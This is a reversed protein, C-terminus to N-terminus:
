KTKPNIKSLIIPIILIMAVIIALETIPLLFEQESEFSKGILFNFFFQGCLAFFIAISFPIGSSGTFLGGIRGLVIPFTAGVGFGILSMATYSAIINEPLLYILMAGIFAITLYIGLVLIDSIRKMLWALIIRGILMGITFMTLSFTAAGIEITNLTLYHPTFSGSIGELGSQLFLILTFLYFLPSTFIKNIIGSSNSTKSERKIVKPFPIIIYYIAFLAMCISVVTLPIKYNEILVMLLTWGLAGICYSAGLISLHRARQINDPYIDAVIANTIGNLVGGGLGVLLISIQLMTIEVYNSLGFIGCLLIIQGLILPTKYGFRSVIPGFILAGVIIGISMISPLSTAGNIESFKPLLAGLSLMVMGYFALGGCAAIFVRTQNYKNTM